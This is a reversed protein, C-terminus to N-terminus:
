KKEPEKITVTFTGKTLPNTDSDSQVSLPNGNEDWYRGDKKEIDNKFSSITMIQGSEYWSKFLGNRQGESYEAITMLQGNEYYSTDIGSKLDKIFVTKNSLQGSPYFMKWRGMKQSKTFSGIRKPSGDQYFEKYLGELKGDEYAEQSKIQHNSYRVTRTGTYPLTDDIPFWKYGSEVERLELKIESETTEILDKLDVQSEGTESERNSCGSILM